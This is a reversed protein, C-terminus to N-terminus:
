EGGVLFFQFCTSLLEFLYYTFVLDVTDSTPTPNPNPNPSPDCTHYNNGSLQM